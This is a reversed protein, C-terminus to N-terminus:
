TDTGSQMGVLLTQVNWTVSCGQSYKTNDAGKIKAVRMTTYRYRMAAKTKMERFSINLM